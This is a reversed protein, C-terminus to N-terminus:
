HHLASDFLGARTSDETRHGSTCLRRLPWDGAICPLLTKEEYHTNVGNSRVTVRMMRPSAVAVASLGAELTGAPGRENGRVLIDKGQRRAAEQCHGPGPRRALSPLGCSLARVGPNDAGLVYGIDDKRRLKGARRARSPGAWTGPRGRRGKRCSLSRGAHPVEHQDGGAPEVYEWSKRFQSQGAFSFLPAIRKWTDGQRICSLSRMDGRDWLDYESLEPVLASRHRWDENGAGSYRVCQQVLFSGSVERAPELWMWADIGDEVAKFLSVRSGDQDVYRFYATGDQGFRFTYTEDQHAAKWSESYRGRPVDSEPLTQDPVPPPPYHKVRSPMGEHGKAPEAAVIPTGEVIRYGIYRSPNNPRVFLLLSRQEHLVYFPPRPASGIVVCTLVCMLTSMLRIVSM